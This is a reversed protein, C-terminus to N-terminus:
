EVLKNTKMLEMQEIEQNQLSFFFSDRVINFATNYFEVEGNKVKDVQKKLIEIVEEKDLWM